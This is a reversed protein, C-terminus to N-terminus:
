MSITLHSKKGQVILAAQVYNIKCKWIYVKGSREAMNARLTQMQGRFVISAEYMSLLTNNVIHLCESATLHCRPKKWDFGLQKQMALAVRKNLLTSAVFDQGFSTENITSRHSFTSNVVFTRAVRRTLSDLPQRLGARKRQLINNFEKYLLIAVLSVAHYDSWKVQMQM